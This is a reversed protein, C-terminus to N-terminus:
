LIDDPMEEDDSVKVGKTLEVANQYFSKSVPTIRAPNNKMDEAMFDLFAELVPDSTELECDQELSILVRGPAIWNAKIGSKDAFETHQRFFASEIRFAQSNGSTGTSGKYQEPATVSKTPLKSSPKKKPM